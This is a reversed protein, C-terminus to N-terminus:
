VILWIVFLILFLVLKYGQYSCGNTQRNIVKQNIKRTPDDNNAFYGLFGPLKNPDNGNSVVSVGCIEGIGQNQNLVVRNNVM